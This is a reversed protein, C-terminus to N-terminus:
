LHRQLSMLRLEQRQITLDSKPNFLATQADWERIASLPVRIGNEFPKHARVVGRKVFQLVTHKSM